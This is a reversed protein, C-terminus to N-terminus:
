AIIKAEELSSTIITEALQHALEHLDQSEPTLDRNRSCLASDLIDYSLAEAFAEVEVDFRGGGSDDMSLSNILHEMLEARPDIDSDDKEDKPTPPPPSPLFVKALGGKLKKAFSYRTRELEPLLPTTPPADPYDISGLLPLGSQTFPPNCPRINVSTQFEEAIDSDSEDSSKDRGGDSEEGESESSKLVYRRRGAEMLAEKVVASALEEALKEQNQNFRSVVEVDVMEMQSLFSQIINETMNQAFRELVENNLHSTRCGDSRGLGGQDPEPVRPGSSAKQM